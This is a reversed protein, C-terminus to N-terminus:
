RAGFRRTRPLLYMPFCNKTNIIMFTRSTIRTKKKESEVSVATAPFLSADEQSNILPLVVTIPVARVTQWPPATNWLISKRLLFCPPFRAKIMVNEPLSRLASLAWLVQLTRASPKASQLRKLLGCYRMM